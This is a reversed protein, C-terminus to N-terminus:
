ERKKWIEWSDFSEVKRYNSQLYDFLNQYFVEQNTWVIYRPPNKELDKLMQFRAQKNFFLPYYYIYKSASRRCSYFYVEPEAGWVYIRDRSATNRELFSAVKKAVVFNNIGYKKISIEDPSSFYFGVQNNFIIAMLLLSFAGAMIMAGPQKIREKFNLIAYASLLSFAPIAQIFYHGYFTKGLFIGGVSLVGWVAVLVNEYRRDKFFIYLVSSISLVWLISNEKMIVTFLQSWLWPQRSVYDVNEFILINAFDPLAGKWGFYFVFLLPFILFGLAMAFFSKGKQRKPMLLFGALVLFNLLAVQKIMVALGSFLGALFMWIEARNKRAQLFCGLALLLPLVMFTETNASTGQIYPGGSFLAYIFASLLGASRGWLQYGVAFILLTLILSFFLTFIRIGALSDGFLKFVGAYIFYVVPPKHDYIDRYPVEGQLMRQAIYAYAGEDRELPEQLFPFRLAGQLLLILVLIIITQWTLGKIM